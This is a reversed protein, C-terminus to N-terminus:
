PHVNARLVGFSYTNTSASCPYLILLLTYHKVCFTLNPKIYKHQLQFITNRPMSSDIKCLWERVNTGMECAPGPLHAITAGSYQMIM